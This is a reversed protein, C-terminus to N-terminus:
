PAGRCAPLAPPPGGRELALVESPLVKLSMNPHHIKPIRLPQPILTPATCATPGGFAAYSDFLCCAFMFHRSSAVTGETSRGTMTAEGGALSLSCRAFPSVCVRTPAFHSGLVSYWPRRRSLPYVAADPVCTALSQVCRGCLGGRPSRQVHPGGPTWGLDGSGGRAWRCAPLPCRQPRRPGARRSAPGGQQGAGASAQRRARASAGCDLHHSVPLRSPECYLRVACAWRLM